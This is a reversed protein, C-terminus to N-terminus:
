QKGKKAEDDMDKKLKFETTTNNPGIIVLEKEKVIGVFDKAAKRKSDYIKGNKVLFNGGTASRLLAWRGTQTKIIGKLEVSAPDFEENSASLGSYDWAGGGTLPVLPDRFREGKYVYLPEVPAEPAPAAAAEPDAVAEPAAGPMAGPTAGPPPLNPADEGFSWSAALLLAAALTVSSLFSNGTKKV